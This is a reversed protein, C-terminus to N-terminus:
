ETVISVIKQPIYLFKKIEKGHTLEKIKPLNNVKVKVSKETDKETVEIEGKVKGNFQIPITLYEDKALEPDFQPWNQLHVSNQSEWATFANIEQWLEEALFPAFPAIVKIFGKWVERDINGAKKLENVFIMIESVATNMKLKEMMRTIKKLMKHYSKEIQNNSVNEKVHKKFAYINRILRACAILGNPNWPYTDEYPGIFALYTRVADAGYSELADQPNVVNGRSKSMKQGDTGLLLGGSMRYMYPEDMPVEGIDYLFKFWFRSYLLHATTHGADGFYMDVPLWYNAIKPDAMRKTNYPDIYRLYYWNSGAWTPMTDTERKAPNGDRDITNVWDSNKALPSIGDDGPLFNEMFPLELPLNEDPITEITGDSKYILPIPEGWYRQRSFVQPRLKYTKAPGGNGEKELRKTATVSFQESSLGNYKQSNVIEGQGIYVESNIKDTPKVVQVIPLALKKAFEYDRQDHAPVGQVIGTGYDLLVYDAIYIPIKTTVEDFPHKAYLGKIIVGTKEKTQRELESFNKSTEIYKIIEEPNSSHKIIEQVLPHEPAIVLFTIGYITDPRTTFTSLEFVTKDDKGDRYDETFVRFKVSAGEKRGIWNIQGLKVSDEYDVKELGDILRDAYKPIDLVWQKFMRKEVKYGGRESIKGTGVPSPLVEEDALVGLEKCWWVPMEKQIALGKGWLRKFTLQTWKYYDPDSTNIERDWDIAYGMDQMAAKYDVAAQSIAEQPTIGAKKAYTEAPLGFSDWGMPFLVNYGRMRLYRSYIEPVTYRMMHGVHLSKGSPYPLEALIYKKPKASFDKAGYINETYWKQKWNNEIKKFNYSM